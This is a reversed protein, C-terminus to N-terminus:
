SKRALKVAVDSPLPPQPPRRDAEDGSGLRTGAAENRGRSGTSFGDLM